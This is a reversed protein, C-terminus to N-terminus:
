VLDLNALAVGLNAFYVVDPRRYSTVNDAKGPGSVIAPAEARQVFADEKGDTKLLDWDIRPDAVTEEGTYSNRFAPGADGSPGSPSWILTVGDPLPGLLAEGWNLGHANCPGVVTYRM